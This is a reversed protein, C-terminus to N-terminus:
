LKGHEMVEQQITQALVGVAALFIGAAACLSYPRFPFLAQLLAAAIMAFALRRRALQRNAALEAPTQPLNPHEAPALLWVALGSAALLGGLWLWPQHAACWAAALSGLVALGVSLIQCLWATPAHWGGARQRLFMAALLVLLPQLPRGLLWGAALTFLVTASQGLKSELAYVYWPRHEEDLLGREIFFSTIGNALAHM